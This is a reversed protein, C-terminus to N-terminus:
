VAIIKEKGSVMKVTVLLQDSEKNINIIKNIFLDFDEFGNKENCFIENFITKKGAPTILMLLSYKREYIGDFFDQTFVVVLTNEDFYSFDQRSTWQYHGNNTHAMIKRVEQELSENKLNKTM